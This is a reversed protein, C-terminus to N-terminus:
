KPNLRAFERGFDANEFELYLSKKDRALKASLGPLYETDAFFQFITLPRKRLMSGYKIAALLRTIFEVATGSITGVVLAVFGGFVFPFSTTDPMTGEPSLLLAPVFAIAGFIAGGVLFPVLTASAIRREQAAHENCLSVVLEMMVVRSRKEVGMNFTIKM